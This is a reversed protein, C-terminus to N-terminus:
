HRTTHPQPRPNVASRIAAWNQSAQNNIMEAVLRPSIPGKLLPSLSISSLRASRHPLLGSPFPNLGTNSNFLNIIPPNRKPLNIPLGADTIPQNAIVPFDDMSRLMSKISQQTEAATLVKYVPQSQASITLPGAGLKAIEADISKYKAPVEDAISNLMAIQAPTFGNGGAMKASGMKPSINADPIVFRNFNFLPPVSHVPSPCPHFHHPKPSPHDFVSQAALGIAFGVALSVLVRLGQRGSSKPEVPRQGPSTVTRVAVQM